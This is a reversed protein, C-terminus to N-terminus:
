KDRTNPATQMAFIRFLSAFVPFCGARALIVSCKWSNRRWVITHIKLPWSDTKVKPSKQKHPVYFSFTFYWDFTCQDLVGLITITVDTHTEQKLLPRERGASQQPERYGLAPDRSLLSWGISFNADPKPFGPREPFCGSALRAPIPTRSEGDDKRSGRSWKRDSWRRKWSKRPLSM